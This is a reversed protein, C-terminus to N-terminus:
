STHTVLLVLVIGIIAVFAVAAVSRKNREPPQGRVPQGAKTSLEMLEGIVQDPKTERGVILDDNGAAVAWVTIRRGDTTLIRLFRDSSLEAVDSWALRHTNFPNRVLLGDDNAILKPYQFARYLGFGAGLVAVITGIALLPASKYTALVMFTGVVALVVSAGGLLMKTTEDNKLVYSREM